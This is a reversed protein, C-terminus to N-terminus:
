FQFYLFETVKSLSLLSLGILLGAAAARLGPWHRAPEFVRLPAGAPVYATLEQTNPAFWVLALLVAILEAARSINVLPPAASAGLGAMSALMTAATSLNPARFIVWGIVVAVFTLVRGLLRMARIERGGTAARWLHNAILYAGHLMGWLIFTRGAGHWLGGLLMTLLLNFYRRTEGHRNGGLPVYLYDRLFRSLTMHWRRWFEIISASKYPSSFNLPLRIGFLLAAGIAMDSYGSFDFYLQLTYALAAIWGDAFSVPAFNAAQFVPGVYVSLTDALLVKKALGISFIGLGTAICAADVPRRSRFQPMVESHHVIPGAILQPFFSVFLSYELWDIRDVKGKYADVLLAIKQFTFFSIGLPLVVSVVPLHTGLLQDIQRLFFNFYKFYGLVSLNFALGAILLYKAGVPSANRWAILLRTFQYNAVILVLLLALGRLSWWGYFFLSAAMLAAFAGRYLGRRTLVHFAFVTAPLFLLLFTYTNFLM